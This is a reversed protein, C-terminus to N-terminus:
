MCNSGEVSVKKCDKKYEDKNYAPKHDGKTPAAVAVSAIASLLLASTTFHMNASTNYTQTPSPQILSHLQHKITLTINGSRANM